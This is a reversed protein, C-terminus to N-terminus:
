ASTLQKSRVLVPPHFGGVSMQGMPALFTQISLPLQLELPQVQLRLTSLLQTGPQGRQVDLCVLRQLPRM